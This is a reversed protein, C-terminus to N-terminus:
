TPLGVDRVAQRQGADMTVFRTLPQETHFWQYGM